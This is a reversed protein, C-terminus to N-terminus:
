VHIIIYDSKTSCAMWFSREVLLETCRFSYTTPTKLCNWVQSHWRISHLAWLHNNFGGFSRPLFPPRYFNAFGNNEEIQVGATSTWDLWKLVEPDRLVALLMQLKFSKHQFNQQHYNYCLVSGCMKARTATSSAEVQWTFSPQNARDLCDMCPVTLGANLALERDDSWGRLTLLYILKHSWPFMTAQSAM